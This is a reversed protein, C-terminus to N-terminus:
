RKKKYVYKDQGCGFIRQHGMEIMIQADTKNPDGGMKVLKQKNYALILLILELILFDFHLLKSLLLFM